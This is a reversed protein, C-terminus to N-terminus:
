TKDVRLCARELDFARFRAVGKHEVENRQFRCPVPAGRRGDGEEAAHRAPPKQCLTVRTWFCPVCNM